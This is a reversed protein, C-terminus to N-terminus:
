VVEANYCQECYVTEPRDPAYSTEIDKGCKSCQRKWLTLPNRHKLRQYHRCNSCLHQLPLQLKQYFQLEPAIIRLATTYKENCQGAHECAIIEKLIEDTVDGISKPLDQPQKTIQYNREDQVKWIYGGEEAEKQTLPFYEQVVAENYAFPSIEAQFFEGYEGSTKMKEIIKDRLLHYDDESYQKNLICFQKDMLGVCGFLDHSRGCFYSYEIDRVDRFVLHSFKINNAGLGVAISDYILRANEGWDTYDFCDKTPKSHILSVYKSDEVDTILFGHSVNKSNYVYDGHVNVNHSGHYSRKPATRWFEQARTQTKVYGEYSNLKLEKLKKEYDDKSYPRNFIHYKKKKLNVCGVCDSCGVCDNSFYVENCDKCSVSGVVRFCTELDFSNYCLECQRIFDCDMSDKIHVWGSGYQSNEVFDADVVLYCNKLDGAWNSYDSNVMTSYNTSLAPLPAKQMLERFQEFFKRNFDYDQYVAGKDWADSWWYKQDYVVFPKDPSFM